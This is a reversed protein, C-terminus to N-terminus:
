KKITELVNEKELKNKTKLPIEKSNYLILKIERKIRDITEKDEIKVKDLFRNFKKKTIEDLSNMFDKFRDELFLENNDYLEKIVEKKDTLNWQNGDYTMAYKDRMNPIYVNHFKPNNKDFDVRRTLEQVSQFGKNLILKVVQEKLTYLDEQGHAIIKINNQTINNSNIINNKITKNNVSIKSKLKKNEKIIQKIKKNQENMKKNQKENQKKLLNMKKDQEDMKEILKNYIQEKEKEIRRREKCYKNVHRNWNCNRNFIKGCYTCIYLQSEIQNNYSELHNKQSESKLEKNLTGNYIDLDNSSNINNYMGSGGLSLENKLIKIKKDKTSKCYGNIHRTLNDKRTYSKDCNLCKFKQPIKQTKISTKHPIISSNNKICSKKRKYVHHDYHGRHNFEKNCKNCKYNVM